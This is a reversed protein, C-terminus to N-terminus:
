GKLYQVDGIPSVSVVRGASKQLSSAMKFVYAFHLSPELGSVEKGAKLDSAYKVRARNRADVNAENLPAFVIKGDAGIQAVRYLCRGSATNMAVVDNIMLRMVLPQGNQAKTPHRLGKEAEALSLGAARGKQM